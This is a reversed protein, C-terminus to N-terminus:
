LCAGDLVAAWKASAAECILAVGSICVDADTGPQCACGISGPKYATSVNQTPSYCAAPRPPLCPGDQVATWRLSTSDCILAVGSICDGADTGPQCACGISGPKYATSVNQTPSYCGTLGPVFPRSDPGCALLPVVVFSLFVCIPTRM